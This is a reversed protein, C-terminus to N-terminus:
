IERIEEYTLMYTLCAAARCACALSTTEYPGCRGLGLGPGPGLGPGLYLVHRAAASSGRASATGGAGQTRLRHCSKPLLLLGAAAILQSRRRM